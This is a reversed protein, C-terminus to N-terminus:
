ASVHFHTGGIELDDDETILWSSSRNLLRFWGSRARVEQGAGIISDGVEVSELRSAHISSDRLDGGISVSQLTQAASIEADKVDSFVQLRQLGGTRAMVTGGDVDSGVWVTGLSGGRVAGLVSGDTSLSEIRDVADVEGAIDGSVHVHEIRGGSGLTGHLSAGGFMRVSGMSDAWMQGYMGSGVLVVEQLHGAVNVSAAAPNASGVSGNIVMLSELNGNQVSVSGTLDGNQVHATEWTNGSELAGDMRGLSFFLGGGGGAWVAGNDSVGGLAIIEGARGGVHVAADFAGTTLLHGLDADDGGAAAVQAAESVIVDGQLDGFIQMSGVDGLVKIQAGDGASRVAGGFLTLNDLGGGGIEIAPGDGGPMGISGGGVIIDDVHTGVHVRGLVDGGYVELTGLRNGIDVRSAGAATLNGGGPATVDGNVVLMHGLSGTISVNGSGGDDERGLDGFILMSDANGNIGAGGRFAGHSTLQGSGSGASIWGAPSTGNGLIANELRGQVRLSSAVIPGSYAFGLDGGISTEGRVSGAGDAIIFTQVDGGAVFDGASSRTLNAFEVEGTGFFGTEDELDGDGDIDVPLRMGGGVFLGNLDRGSLRSNLHLESIDADTAIFTIPRQSFTQDYIAIPHSSGPMQEIAVGFDTYQPMLGVATIGTSPSGAIWAEPRADIEMDGPGFDTDYFTVRGGYTTELTGAYAGALKTRFSFSYDDGGNGDQNADLPNGWVDEIGGSRVVLTYDDQPLALGQNIQLLVSDTDADASDISIPGWTEATLEYNSTDSLIHGPITENFQLQIHHVPRFNLENLSNSVIFPPAFDRAPKGSVVLDDINWGSFRVSSDTPGMGFRVQFQENGDAFASVDFEQPTWEDDTLWVDPNHWLEQWEAGDFVEIFADDWFNNEVNLWRQFGLTVDRFVGCDITPSTVWRTSSINNEYDGGIDYGLLMNDEGDTTDQAPDPFGFDGGGAMAEDREWRGPAFGTWGADTSFPDEFINQRGVWSLNLSVTNNDEDVEEVADEPDVVGLMFYFGDTEFPDDPPFGTVHVTDSVIGTPGMGDFSYSALFIDGGQEIANNDSLYFEVSATEDFGTDGFNRVNFDIDVETAGVVEEPTIEVDTLELDVGEVPTRMSGVANNANLRGGTAVRGQLPPLPDVGELLANRLDPVRALPNFAKLLAAAGTVHPAAMSTGSMTMYGGGMRTSLISEGPAGLDVSEVGYNSFGAMQDTHTTAAVSIINDLDFSAPYAPDLDNNSSSNGAAAVVLVGADGAAEIADRLATSPAGTGGWSMNLVDFEMDTAYQVAEIAASMSIFPSAGIGIALAGMQVDWNVGSVGVGNNGVAGITGAVHTGHGNQDSPDNTDEYFHWGNIDDVYGNGDNDVGDGPIEGPNVWINDVLDVHQIDVGSDVVGVLVSDDGTTFDWAEPADIDADPIGGTQGTNHLGWLSSFMPDDPVAEVKYLYDPEAYRVGHRESLSRVAESVKTGEPLQVLMAPSSDFQKTVSAGPLDELIQQPSDVAGPEYGVIMRGPHVELPDGEQGPAEYMEPGEFVSGGGAASLLVRPELAELRLGSRRGTREVKGADLWRDFISLM